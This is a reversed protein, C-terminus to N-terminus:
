DNRGSCIKMHSQHQELTITQHTGLPHLYKLALVFSFKFLLLYRICAWVNIWYNYSLTIFGWFNLIDFGLPELSILLALCFETANDWLFVSTHQLLVDLNLGQIGMFLNVEVILQPYIQSVSIYVNKVTAYTEDIIGHYLTDFDGETAFANHTNHNEKYELHTGNIPSLTVHYHVRISLCSFM